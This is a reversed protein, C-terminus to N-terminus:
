QSDRELKENIAEVVFGNLSKEGYVDKIRQEIEAKKGKYVRILLQDYNKANWRNKIITRRKGM